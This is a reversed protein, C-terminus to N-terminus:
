SGLDELKCAVGGAIVLPAADNGPVDLECHAVIFLEVLKEPADCNSRATDKGVDM